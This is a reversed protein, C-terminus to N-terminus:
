KIRNCQTNYSDPCGKMETYLEALLEIGKIDNIGEAKTFIKWIREIDDICIPTKVPLILEIEGNSIIAKRYYTRYTSTKPEDFILTWGGQSIRDNPMQNEDIFVVYQSIDTNTWVKYVFPLLIIAIKAEELIYPMTSESVINKDSIAVYTPNNFKEIDSVKDTCLDHVVMKARDMMSEKNM